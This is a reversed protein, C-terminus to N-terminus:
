RLHDFVIKAGIAILLLGAAAEFKTEFFHGTRNGIYVGFFCIAFTVVGIIIAPSIIAVKLFSLSLGVAFADISTALALFLIRLIGKNCDQAANKLKFSEWIMKAGIGSLISFAIWHDLKQLAVSLGAGSLWGLMPMAAQFAGFFFALKFARRTSFCKMALGEAVSVAFADMSLGVAIVFVLGANM